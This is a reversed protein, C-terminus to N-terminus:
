FIQCVCSSCKNNDIPTVGDVLVDKYSDNNNNKLNDIIKNKNNNNTNFNTNYNNNNHSGEISNIKNYKINDINMVNSSNDINYKVDSFINEYNNGEENKNKEGESVKSFYCDVINGYRDLCKGKNENSEDGNAENINMNSIIYANSKELELSFKHSINDGGINLNNKQTGIKLFKNSKISSIKIKSLDHNRSSIFGPQIIQNEIKIKNSDSELIKKHSKDKPSPIQPTDSSLNSSSNMEPGQVFQINIEDNNNISNSNKVNSSENQLHSNNEKM